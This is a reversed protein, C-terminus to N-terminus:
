KEGAEVLTEHSSTEGLFDMLASRPVLISRGRRLVRLEGTAAAAYLHDRSLAPILQHWEKVTAVLPLDGAIM